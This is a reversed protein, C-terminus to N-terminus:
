IGARFSRSKRTLINVGQLAGHVFKDPACPVVQQLTTRYPFTGRRESPWAGRTQWLVVGARNTRHAAGGQCATAFM